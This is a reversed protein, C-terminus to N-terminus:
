AAVPENKDSLTPTPTNPPQAPRAQPLGTVIATVGLIIEVDRHPALEAPAIRGTTVVLQKGFYPHALSRDYRGMLAADCRKVVQMAGPLSRAEEVSFGSFLLTDLRPALRDLLASLARTQELPEGGSFTVGRVSLSNLRSALDDIDIWHGPRADHTAENFCGDCRLSCGQTWVVARDGPGNQLSSSQFQHIRLRM